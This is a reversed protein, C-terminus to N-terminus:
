LAASEISVMDPSWFVTSQEVKRKGLASSSVGTCSTDAINTNTSSSAGRAQKRVDEFSREPEAYAACPSVPAYSSNALVHNLADEQNKHVREDIISNVNVLYSIVEPKTLCEDGVVPGFKGSIAEQTWIRQAVRLQQLEKLVKDANLIISEETRLTQDISATRKKALSVVNNMCEKLEDIPRTELYAYLHQYNMKLQFKLDNVDPLKNSFCLSANCSRLSTNATESESNKRFDM